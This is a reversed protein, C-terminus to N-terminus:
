KDDDLLSKLVCEANAETDHRRSAAVPKATSLTQQVEIVIVPVVTDKQSESDALFNRTLQVNM